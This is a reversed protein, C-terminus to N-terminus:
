KKRCLYKVSSSEYEKSTQTATKVIIRNEEM